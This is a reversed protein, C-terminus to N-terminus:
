RNRRGRRGQGRRGRRGGGGGGGGGGPATGAPEPAYSPPTSYGYQPLSLPMNQAAMNARNLLAETMAQNYSLNAQGMQGQLQGYQDGAGLAMDQAARGYPVGIDRQYLYPRMGSGSIGREALGELQSKTAYGRDTGLRQQGLALQRAVIARQNGINNQAASLADNANRQDSEYQPTM